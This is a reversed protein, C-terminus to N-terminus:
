ADPDLHRSIEGNYLMFATVVAAPAILALGV